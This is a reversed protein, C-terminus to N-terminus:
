LFLKILLFEIVMQCNNINNKVFDEGFITINEKSKDINYIIEIQTQIMKEYINIIKNFKTKINNDNIINDIDKIINNNEINNINYLIEYNIRDKNYNNIMNENINYYINM